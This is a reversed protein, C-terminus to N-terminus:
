TYSSEFIKLVSAAATLGATGISMAELNTLNDPKKVVWEVPVNIYEGFGGPTNMGMDYGTVIVEDGEGFLQRRWPGDELRLGDEWKMKAAHLLDVLRVLTAIYRDPIKDMHGDLAAFKEWWDLFLVLHEDLNKALLWLHVLGDLHLHSDLIAEMDFKLVLFSEIM